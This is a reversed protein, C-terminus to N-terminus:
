CYILVFGVTLVISRLMAEMRQLRESRTKMPNGTMGEAVMAMWSLAEFDYDCSRKVKGEMAFDVERVMRANQSVPTQVMETKANEFVAGEKLCLLVKLQRNLCKRWGSARRQESAAQEKAM